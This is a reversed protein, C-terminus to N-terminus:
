FREVLPLDIWFKSGEGIKSEVGYRGGLMDMISKVISLGLGSGQAARRHSKDIKYYREWIHPLKDPPIGEGADAVSVRVYSKEGGRVIEQIIGVRKDGGTYTVANNVLNYFAQLFRTEDTETVVTEDYKFDIVYGDQETLKNYRCLANKLSETVNVERIDLVQTGSQLKSIDLVDNVLTTLRKAEDVIIQVNEPTNEGPLDRMIESYGVIMTLPTRLDHSINAILESKLKDIKSLEGAAYDLTEALESIEKYNHEGGKFDVNYNGEALIKASANIREIPASIHRSLFATLVLAFLLLFVSLFILQLNLTDITAKVPSIVSNVMLVIDEDSKNKFIQTYIISEPGESHRSFFSETVGTYIHRQADYVFYQLLEGNNNLASSYLRFKSRNDTNHIACDPLADVSLFEVTSIVNGSNTIKYAVVCVDNQASLSVAYEALNDSDIKEKIRGAYTKIENVKVYKYIPELLVVQALWLIM